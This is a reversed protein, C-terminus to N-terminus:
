LCKAEVYLFRPTLLLLLMLLSLSLSLSLSLLHFRPDCTPVGDHIITNAPPKPELDCCLSFNFRKSTRGVGVLNVPKAPYVVAMRSPRAACVTFLYSTRDVGEEVVCVPARPQVVFLVTRPKLRVAWHFRLPSRPVFVTSSLATELLCSRTKIEMGVRVRQVSSRRCLPCSSRPAKEDGGTGSTGSISRHLQVVRRM